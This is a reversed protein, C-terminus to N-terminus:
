HDDGNHVAESVVADGEQEMDGTILGSSAMLVVRDGPCEALHRVVGNLVQIDAAITNECHGMNSRCYASRCARLPVAM